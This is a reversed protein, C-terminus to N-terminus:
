NNEGDTILKSDGDNSTDNTEEGNENDNDNDANYILEKIKEVISSIFVRIDKDQFDPIEFIYDYPKILKNEFAKYYDEFFEIGQYLYEGIDKPDAKKAYEILIMKKKSEFFNIIIAKEMDENNIEPQIQETQAPLEPLKKNQLITPILPAVIKLLMDTSDEKDPKSDEKGSKLKEAIDLIKEIDDPFNSSKNSSILSVIKIIEDLNSSPQNNNKNALLATMIQTQQNTTNQMQAMLLEIMKDNSNNKESLEKKIDDMTISPKNEIPIISKAYLVTLRKKIKGGVRIHYEYKGGGYQRAIDDPRFDSLPYSQVKERQGTNTFHFVSVTFEQDDGCEEIIKQLSSPIDDTDNIEEDILATEKIPIQNDAEEINGKDKKAGM